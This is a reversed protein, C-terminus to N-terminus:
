RLDARRIQELSALDLVAGSGDSHAWVRVNDILGAFPRNGVSTNGIAIAARPNEEGVPGVPLTARTVLRVPENQDGAYFIVNNREATGDYTVAFFTWRDTHRFASDNSLVSDRNLSLALGRGEGSDFHLSVRASAFLRAFNAPQKDPASRYWGQITFSQAGQLLESGWRFQAQGGKGPNQNTGGMDSANTLNDFARSQSSAGVGQGPASLLNADSGDAGLFTLGPQAARDFTLELALSEAFPLNAASATIGLLPFLFLSFANRSLKM